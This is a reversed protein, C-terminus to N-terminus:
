PSISAEIDNQAFGLIEALMAGLRYDLTRGPM